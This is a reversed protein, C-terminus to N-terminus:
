EPKVVHEKGDKNLIRVSSGGPKAFVQIGNWERLGHDGSLMLVSGDNAASLKVLPKGDTDILRLLVGTDSGDAAKNVVVQARM